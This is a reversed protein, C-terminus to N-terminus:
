KKSKKGDKDVPYPTKDDKPTVTFTFSDGKQFSRGTINKTGTIAYSGSEEYSNVFKALDTSNNRSNQYSVAAQLQGTKNGNADKDTVQVTVTGVNTDYTVGNLKNNQADQPINEAM